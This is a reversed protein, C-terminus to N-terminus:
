LNQQRKKKFFDKLLTASEEENIGSTVITKPHLIKTNYSIYGKKPDSAAYVIRALQAWSSAGACMMCPELTVYLTCESLYKSNLYNSAATIAIIEAHATVDHLRQTMNYGRAIIKSNCVIVAGIPVEDILLAKKAEKLAEQMFYIDSTEQSEKETKM